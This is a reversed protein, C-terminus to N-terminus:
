RDRSASEPVSAAQVPDSPATPYELRVTVPLPQTSRLPGFLGVFATVLITAGTVIVLGKTWVAMKDSAKAQKTATIVQQNAAKAQETAAAAQQTAIEMQRDRLRTDAESKIALARCYAELATVFLDERAADLRVKANVWNPDNRSRGLATERAYAEWEDFGNKGTKCERYHALAKEYGSWPSTDM